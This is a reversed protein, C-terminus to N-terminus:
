WPNPSPWSETWPAASPWDGYQRAVPASPISSSGGAPPPEPAAGVPPTASPEAAGTRVEIEIAVCAGLRALSKVDLESPTASFQGALVRCPEPPDAAAIGVNWAAVGLMIWVTCAVVRLVTGM